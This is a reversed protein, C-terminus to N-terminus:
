ITFDIEKTNFSTVFRYTQILEKSFNWDYFELGQNRLKQALISPMKVFIENADVPYILEVEPFNLLKKSLLKAMKNAHTANKLWLSNEFM